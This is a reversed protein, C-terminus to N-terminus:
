CGLCRFSRLLDVRRRESKTLEQKKDLQAEYRIMKLLLAEAVRSTNVKKVDRDTNKNKM